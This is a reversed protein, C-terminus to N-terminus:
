CDGKVRLDIEDQVLRCVEYDETRESQKLLMRLEDFTLQELRKRLQQEEILLDTM